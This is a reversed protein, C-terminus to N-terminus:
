FHCLFFYLLNIHPTAACVSIGFIELAVVVHQQQFRACFPTTFCAPRYAWTHKPKQEQRTWPAQMAATQRWACLLLQIVTVTVTVAHSHTHPNATYNNNNNRHM